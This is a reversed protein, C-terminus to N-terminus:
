LFFSEHYLWRSEAVYQNRTECVFFQFAKQSTFNVGVHPFQGEMLRDSRLMIDVGLWNTPIEHFKACLSKKCLAVPSAHNERFDTRHYKV